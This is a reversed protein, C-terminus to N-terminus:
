GFHIFCKASKWESMNELIGFRGVQESVLSLRGLQGLLYQVSGSIKKHLNYKHMINDQYNKGYLSEM